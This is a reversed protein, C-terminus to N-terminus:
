FDHVFLLLAQRTHTNRTRQQAYELDSHNQLNLQKNKLFVELTRQLATTTVGVMGGSLFCVNKLDSINHWLGYLM